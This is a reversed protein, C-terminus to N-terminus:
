NSNNNERKIAIILVREKNLYNLLSTVIFNVYNTSSSLRGCM